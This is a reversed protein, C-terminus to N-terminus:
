RPLAPPAATRFRVLMPDDQMDILDALYPLDIALEPIAALAIATTIRVQLVEAEIARLWETRRSAAVPPESDIRLAVDDHTLGSAKRREAVYLGPSLYVTTM